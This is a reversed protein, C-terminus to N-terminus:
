KLGIQHSLWSWGAISMAAIIGFFFVIPAVIKTTASLGKIVNAFGKADDWTELIELTRKNIKRQEDQEKKIEEQKDFMVNQRSQMTLSRKDLVELRATADGLRDNVSEQCTQLDEIVKDLRRREKQRDEEM